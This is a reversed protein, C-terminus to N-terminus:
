GKLFHAARENVGVDINRTVVAAVAGRRLREQVHHPGDSRSDGDPAPVVVLQRAVGDDLPEGGEAGNVPLQGTVLLDAATDADGSYGAIPVIGLSLLEAKAEGGMNGAMVAAVDLEKMKAAMAQHGSLMSTDVLTKKCDSVYDGYEYVAFMPCHGFHGYIEGDQYAVAIKM